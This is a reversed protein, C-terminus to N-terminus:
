GGMTFDHVTFIDLDDPGGAGFVKRDTGVSHLGMSELTPRWLTSKDAGTDVLMRTAHGNISVSALPENHATTVSLEAIKLLQCTPPRAM